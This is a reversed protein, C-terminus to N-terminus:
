KFYEKGRINTHKPLTGERDSKSGPHKRRDMIRQKFAGYTIKGAKLCESAVEDGIWNPLNDCLHLIGNLSRYSQEKFEYGYIIGQIFLKMNPGIKEAWKLYYRDDRGNMEQEFRHNPAMHDKQTIYLKEMGYARKHACILHNSEDCILVQFPSAKVLVYTPDQRSYLTYPVSYYHEDFKIHYTDPVRVRDYEFLQYRGAPLPRMNPLDITRFLESRSGKENRKPRDNMKRVLEMIRINLDEFSSFSTNKIQPLVFREIWKVANEVSAKGTPKRPPALVVVIDYFRELDKFAENLLLADKTNKNVATKMNDPKFIRPLAGYFDVASTVGDIVSPLKEDPYAKAFLLSSVGLTTVLIHTKEMEHSLPDPRVLPLVDGVWDIYMIEGPERQVIMKVQSGLQLRDTWDLFHKRFQTYQYGNPFHEIYLLWELYLNSPATKATVNRFVSDFDPLPISEDRAKKPYFLNKVESPDMSELDPISLSSAALRSRIRIITSHGLGTRARIDRVSLGLELLHCVQLITACNQM